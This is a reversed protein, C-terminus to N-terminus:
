LKGGVIRAIGGIAYPISYPRRATVASDHGYGLKHLWEHMMNACVSSLSYGDFYKTNVYIYKVNGYTYGVTNSSSYYFRVELDMENDKTNQLKENGDLIHDYVCDDTKCPDTSMHAFDNDGYEHSFIRDKFEKSAVIKKMLAVAKMYKERRAATNYKADGGFTINIKFTEAPDPPVETSPPVPQPVPTPVPAPEVIPPEGGPGTPPSNPPDTPAPTPSPQSTTPQGSPSDDGKDGGECAIFFILLFIALFTKVNM